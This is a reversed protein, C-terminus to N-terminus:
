YSKNYTQIPLQYRNMGTRFEMEWYKTHDSRSEKILSGLIFESQIQSLKLYFDDQTFSGFDIGYVQAFKELDKRSLDRMNITTPVGFSIPSEMQSKMLMQELETALDEKTMSERQIRINKEEEDEDDNVPDLPSLM